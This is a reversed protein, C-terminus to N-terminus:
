INVGINLKLVKFSVEEFTKNIADIQSERSKYGQDADGSKYLKYGIKTEQRDAGVGFRANEVGLYQTKRMWSVVENHNARRKDTEKIEEECLYQDIPDMNEPIGNADDTKDAMYRKSDVLDM